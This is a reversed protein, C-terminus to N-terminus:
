LLLHGRGGCAGGLHAMRRPHAIVRYLTRPFFLFWTCLEYLFEELSRLLKLFDM